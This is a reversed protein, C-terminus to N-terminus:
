DYADQKGDCPLIKLHAKEWAARFKAMAEERTPASTIAMVFIDSKPSARHVPECSRCGRQCSMVSPRFPGSPFM